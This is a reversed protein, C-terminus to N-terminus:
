NLVFFFGGHDSKYFHITLVNILMYNGNQPGNFLRVSSATSCVQRSLQQHYLAGASEKTVPSVIGVSLLWDQMEKTGMEEDEAGSAQNNSGSLLKLRMKEALTVMEKAKGKKRVYVCFLKDPLFLQDDDIFSGLKTYGSGCCKIEKTKSQKKLMSVYFKVHSSFHIMMNDSAMLKIHNICGM